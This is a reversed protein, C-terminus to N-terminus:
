SKRGCIFIFKEIKSSQITFEFQDYNIIIDIKVMMLSSKDYLGTKTIYLSWKRNNFQSPLNWNAFVEHAYKVSSGLETKCFRTWFQVWLCCHNANNLNKDTRLCCIERYLRLVQLWRVIYALSWSTYKPKAFSTTISHLVPRCIALNSYKTSASYVFSYRDCYAIVIEM